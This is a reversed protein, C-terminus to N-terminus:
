AKHLLARLATEISPPLCSRLLLKWGETQLPHLSLSKLFYSRSGSRDGKELTERGVWNCADAHCRELVGRPLHIRKADNGLTTELTALYNRAIAMLYKPSSLADEAGIRYQILPADIFAVPGERCTKLHFPYDEGTRFQENFFGVQERRSARILVTSTHVLNGLVMPSFIDGHFVHTEPAPLDITIEGTFLASATPFFRYAQYMRRLYRAHQIHGQPDIAQMDTWVMGAEPIKRLVQVQAELKAPLWLDDSDLLAIFEGRAERLGRNRAASVGQNEQWFYRVRADAGYRSRILEASDDRSGDDVVLVEISGYTQSLVSDIAGCILHARNYTPIIVSVLDRVM